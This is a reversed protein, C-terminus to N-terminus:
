AKSEWEGSEESYFCSKLKDMLGHLREQVEQKNKSSFLLYSENNLYRAWLGWPPNGSHINIVYVLDLNILTGDQTEIWM